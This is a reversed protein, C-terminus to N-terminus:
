HVASEEDNGYVEDIVEWYMQEWTKEPDLYSKENDELIEIRRLAAILQKQLSITETLIETVQDQLEMIRDKNM